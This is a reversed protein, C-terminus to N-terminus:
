LQFIEDERDRLKETLKTVTLATKATKTTMTRPSSIASQSRTLPRWDSTRGGCAAELDEVRKEAEHRGRVAAQKSSSILDDLRKLFDVPTLDSSSALAASPEKSESSSGDAADCDETSLHGDSLIPILLSKKLFISDNTYLRNARRIDEMSVGYKLALGQLTEGAQIEHELRRPRVPSCTLSGYSRSRQYQYQQYQNQHNQHQYRNNRHQLLRLGPSPARQESM